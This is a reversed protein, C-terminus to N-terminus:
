LHHPRTYKNREYFRSGVPILKKTILKKTILLV